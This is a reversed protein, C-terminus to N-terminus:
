SVTTWTSSGAVLRQVWRYNLDEWPTAWPTLNDLVWDGSEFSVVLVAHTEGRATVAVAMSLASEPVGAAILRRRKELAYDECDGYMKGNVVRPLSWYELLGYLNFDTAKHVDKNVERNIANILRMQSPGVLARTMAATAPRAPLLVPKDEAEVATRLRDVASAFQSDVAPRYARLAAVEIVPSQDSATSVPLSPGGGISFTTLAGTPVLNASASAVDLTGCSVEGRQCLDTYGPPPAITEGTPMFPRAGAHAVTSVLLAAAATAINGLQGRIRM